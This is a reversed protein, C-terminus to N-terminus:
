DLRSVYESLCEGVSRMGEVGQDRLKANSLVSYKPRQAPTPYAETPIPEIEVERSERLEERCYTEIALKAFGHWSMVDEGTAHFIGPMMEKETIDVLTRALDATYTPCGTQDAVVRLQKGALYANIMTRPFSKGNPGYLWSTRVIVSSANAAMVSQEGALKSRGYVGLPNTKDTETYPETKVGDFVFDTSVHILRVGAMQCVNALYGPGLANVTMAQDSESEALDVATYAACNICWRINKGFVGTVVQAVSEPNTIDLEVSSPAAVEHRRKKLEAVVDSGLMGTGGVVLFNM